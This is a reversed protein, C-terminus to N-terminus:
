VDDPKFNWAGHRTRRVPPKRSGHASRGKVARMGEVHMACRSAMSSASTHTPLPRQRAGARRPNAARRCARRTRCISSPVLLRVAPRQVPRGAESDCVLRRNRRGARQRFARPPRPCLALRDRAGRASVPRRAAGLSGPEDRRQRDRDELRAAELTCGSASAGSHCLDLRHLDSRGGTGRPTSRPLRVPSSWRTTPRNAAGGGRGTVHGDPTFHHCGLRWSRPDGESPARRHVRANGESM